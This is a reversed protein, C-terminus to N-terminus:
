SVTEAYVTHFSLDGISDAGRLVNPEIDLHHVVGYADRVTASKSTPLLKPNNTDLYQNVANWYTGIKAASRSGVPIAHLKGNELVLMTVARTDKITWKGNVWTSRTNKKMFTRLSKVSIAEATAAAKQTEGRKVRSLAREQPIVPDIIRVKRSHKKSAKAKGKLRSSRSRKRKPSKRKSSVM